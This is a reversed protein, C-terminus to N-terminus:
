CGLNVVENIDVITSLLHNGGLGREGVVWGIRERGDAGQASQRIADLIGGDLLRDDVTPRPGVDGLREADRTLGDVLLM